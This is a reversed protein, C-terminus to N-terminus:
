SRGTRTRKRSAGIVPPASPHRRHAKEPRVMAAHACPLAATRLSGLLARNGLLEGETEVGTDRKRAALQRTTAPDSAGSSAGDGDADIEKMAEEAERAPASGARVADSILEEPEPDIEDALLGLLEGIRRGLTVQTAHSISQSIENIHGISCGHREADVEIVDDGLDVLGVEGLEPRSSTGHQASVPLDQLRRAILRGVDLTDQCLLGRQRPRSM